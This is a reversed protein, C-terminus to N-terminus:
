YSLYSSANLTFRVYIRNIYRFYGTYQSIAVPLNRKPVSIHGSEWKVPPWYSTQIILTEVYIEKWSFSSVFLCITLFPFCRLFWRFIRTTISVAVTIPITVAWTLRAIIVIFVISMIFMKITVTIRTIMIVASTIPFIIPSILFTIGTAGGSILFSFSIPFLLGISVDVFIFM